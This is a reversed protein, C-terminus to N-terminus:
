LKDQEVVKESSFLGTQDACETRSRFDYFPQCNGDELFKMINLMLVLWFQLCSFFNVSAKCVMPQDDFQLEGQKHTVESSRKEKCQVQSTDIVEESFSHFSSVLRVVSVFLAEVQPFDSTPEWLM